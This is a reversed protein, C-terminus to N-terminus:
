QDPQHHGRTSSERRQQVNPAVGTACMSSDANLGPQPFAAIAVIFGM